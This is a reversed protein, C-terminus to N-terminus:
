PHRCTQGSNKFIRDPVRRWYPWPQAVWRWVLQARPKNNNAMITQCLGLTVFNFVPRHKPKPFSVFWSHCSSSGLAWRCSDSKRGIVVYCSIIQFVRRHALQLFYWDGVSLKFDLSALADLFSMPPFFQCPRQFFSRSPLFILPCFYPWHSGTVEYNVWLWPSLGEFMYKSFFAVEQLLSLSFFQWCM